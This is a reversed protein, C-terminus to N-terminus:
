DRQPDFATAPVLGHERLSGPNPNPNPLNAYNIDPSNISSNPDPSSDSNPSANHKPDANANLSKPKPIISMSSTRSQLTPTPKLNHPGLLDLIDDDDDEEEDAVQPLCSPMYVPVCTPVYGLLGTCAHAHLCPRLNLRM